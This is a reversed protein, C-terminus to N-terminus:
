RPAYSNDTNTFSKSNNRLQSRQSRQSWGSQRRSSQANANTRYSVFADNLPPLGHANETSLTRLMPRTTEVTNNNNGDNMSRTRSFRYTTPTEAAEMGEETGVFGACSARDMDDGFVFFMLSRFTLFWFFTMAPTLSAYYALFIYFPSGEECITGIDDKSLPIEDNLLSRLQQRAYTLGSSNNPIDNANGGSKAGGKARQKGKRIKALEEECRIKVEGIKKKSSVTRGTFPNTLSAIEPEKDLKKIYEDCM